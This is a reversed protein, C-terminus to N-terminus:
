DIDKKEERLVRYLQSSRSTSVNGTPIELVEIELIKHRFHIKIKDLPKVMDGAKAPKDNLIVCRNDCAKKAETRRKIIRSLKFFKDIRM